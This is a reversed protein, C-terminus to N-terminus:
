SSSPTLTNKKDSMQGNDLHWLAHNKPAFVWDFFVKVAPSKLDEKSLIRMREIASPNEKIYRFFDGSSRPENLPEEQGLWADCVQPNAQELLSLAKHPDKVDENPTLYKTRLSNIAKAHMPNSDDVLFLTIHQDLSHEGNTEILKPDNKYDFNFKGLVGVLTPIPKEEVLAQAIVRGMTFNVGNGCMYRQTKNVVMADVAISRLLMITNIEHDSLNNNSLLVNVKQMIKQDTNMSFSQISGINQSIKLFHKQTLSKNAKMKGNKNVSYSAGPIRNASEISPPMHCLESYGFTPQNFTQIMTGYHNPSTNENGSGEGNKNSNGNLLTQGFSTNPSIVMRMLTSYWLLNIIFTFIKKVLEKM